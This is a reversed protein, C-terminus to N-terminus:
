QAYPTQDTSVYKLMPRLSIMLNIFVSALVSLIDSLFHFLKSHLVWHFFIVIDWGGHSSGSKFIFLKKNKNAWVKALRMAM